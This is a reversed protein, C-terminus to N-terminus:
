KVWEEPMRAGKKQNCDACAPVLNGSHNSGGKSRPTVHDMQSAQNECYACKIFCRPPFHDGTLFAAWRRLAKSWHRFLANGAREKGMFWMDNTANMAAEFGALYGRRYEAEEEQTRPARNSADALTRIELELM